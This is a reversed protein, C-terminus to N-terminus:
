AAVPEGQVRYVYALVSAVAEFLDEPIVDGIECQAHLARALPVNEFCTVDNERAIQKIHQAVHDVGKAVVRPAGGDSAFRDYKLAVAYHTPNTVVVTADPVEDMMRRSAMERQVQRIRAKIHPDGEINKNEERVEQKSMRLDKSHQFRQFAFDVVGLVVIAILAAVVARVFLSDALLLVPGIEVGDIGTLSSLGRFATVFIALGIFTLKLSAMTTRVVSRMSFLRGLGKIPNLKSLDWEIAKPSIHLGIQGYGVLLTLGLLPGAFLLLAELGADGADRMLADAVRIDIDDQGMSAIQAFATRVRDGLIELIPGGMMLYLGLAMCLTLAAIFETSFPVQGKERAEERRRPTADETKEGADSDQAM